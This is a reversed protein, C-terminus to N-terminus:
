KLGAVWAALKGRRKRAFTIEIIRQLSNQEFSIRVSEIRYQEGNLGFAPATVSVWQGTTWSTLGYTPTATLQKYGSFWGYKNHSQTGAGRLTFKGSLIPKSRELFYSQAFTDVLATKVRARIVAADVLSELIPGQRATYGIAADTYVRVFPDPENNKDVGDATLFYSRKSTNSQDYSVTLDRPNITSVAGGANDPADGAVTTIAFPADAFTPGTDVLAYNLVGLNDIWYRRAKRDQGQFMEVVSDLAGRLSGLVIDLKNNADKIKTATGTASVGSTTNTHFINQFAVDTSKQDHVVKLIGRVIAAETPGGAVYTISNVVQNQAGLTKAKRVILRDLVNNVDVVAVRTMTGQGGEMMAVDISDIFGLFTPTSSTASTTDVFRVRANDPISAYWPGSFASATGAPTVDQLAVFDMNSTSGDGNSDYHVTSPTTYVASNRGAAYAGTYNVVPNLLDQSFSATSQAVTGATTTGGTVFTFTTGNAVTAVRWLASGLTINAAAISSNEITIAAGVSLGHPNSSSTTATFTGNTAGLTAILPGDILLQFPNVAM